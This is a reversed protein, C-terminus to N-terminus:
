AFFVGFDRLLLELHDVFRIPLHRFLQLHRLSFPVPCHGQGRQSTQTVRDPPPSHGNNDYQCTNPSTAYNRNM